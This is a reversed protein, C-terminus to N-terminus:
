HSALLSLGEQVTFPPRWGLVSCTRSIDVRLSSVLRDVEGQRGVLRAAARLIPLPVPFLHIPRGVADAIGRLLDPTSIDDGDSVLFTEGVSSPHDLCTLLLDTLNDLSVLSRLNDISGLPLPLGSRVLRVMRDINGKAGPGYVLPPRVIILGLQTGQTLERLKQEAELKSRAYNEVPAPVDSSSFPERNNTHSGLVGISSLFILRRVGHSICQEALRRTGAVNVLRYEELAQSPSERVMHARAACHIVCDIGQLAASWDTKEDISGTSVVEIASRPGIPDGKNARVAGRVKKGQMALKACIARGIFGGAGTVLVASGM